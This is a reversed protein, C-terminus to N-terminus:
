GNSLGSQLNRTQRHVALRDINFDRRFPAYSCRIVNELAQIM